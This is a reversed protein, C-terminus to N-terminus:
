WLLEKNPTKVVMVLKKPKIKIEISKNGTIYDKPPRSFRRACSHIQTIHFKIGFHEAADAPDFNIWKGDQGKIGKYFYYSKGTTLVYILYSGRKIYHTADRFDKRNFMLSTSLESLSLEPLDREEFIERDYTGDMKNKHPHNNIKCFLYIAKNGKLFDPLSTAREFGADKLDKAIRKVSEPAYIDELKFKFEKVYSLDIM